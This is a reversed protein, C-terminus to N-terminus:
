GVKAEDGTAAKNAAAAELVAHTRADSLERLANFSGYSSRDPPIVLKDLGTGEAYRYFDDGPKVKLDRASLDVGWTGFKPASLNEKADQAFAPATTLACCAAACLLIRNM